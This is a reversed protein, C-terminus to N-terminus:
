NRPQFPAVGMVRIREIAKARARTPVSTPQSRSAFRGAPLPAVEELLGPLVDPLALPEAPLPAELWGFFVVGAGVDGEPPVDPLPLVVPL